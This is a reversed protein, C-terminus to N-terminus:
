VPFGLLYFRQQIAYRIPVVVSVGSNYTLPGAVQEGNMVPATVYELSRQLIHTLSFPPLPTM